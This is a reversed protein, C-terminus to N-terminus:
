REAQEDGLVQARRKRPHLAVFEEMLSKLSPTGSIKVQLDRKEGSKKAMFVFAQHHLPAM